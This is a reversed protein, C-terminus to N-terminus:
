RDGGRQIRETVGVAAAQRVQSSGDALLRALVEPPTHANGAVAQRVRSAPDAALVVLVEPASSSRALLHRTARPLHAPPLSLDPAPPPGLPTALRAVFAPAGRVLLTAGSNGQLSRLRPRRYVRRRVVRVEGTARDVRRRDVRRPKGRPRMPAAQASGDTRVQPKPWSGRARVARYHSRLVRRVQIAQDESIGSEATLKDLGWVGWFRFSAHFEGDPGRWEDPIRHQYAKRQGPLSHATFYIAAAVPGVLKTTAKWDVATGAVRHTRCELRADPTGCSEPYRCLISHWVESLWDRRSVPSGVFYRVGRTGALDKFAFLVSPVEGGNLEGLPPFSPFYHCGRTGCVDEPQLHEVEETGPIKRVLVDSPIWETRVRGRADDFVEVRVFERPLSLLLHVHPAGRQQFELKWVAEARGFTQDLVRRFKQLSVQVAGPGPAYQPWTPNGDADNGPWTLTVLVLCRTPNSWLPSLDTMGVRQAMRSRSRPHWGSTPSRVGSGLKAGVERGTRYWSFAEGNRAVHRAQEWRSRRLGIANPGVSLRYPSAPSGLFGEVAAQVDQRSPPALPISLTPPAASSGPFSSANLLGQGAGPGTSEAGGSPAAPEHGTAESRRRDGGPRAVVDRGGDPEAM